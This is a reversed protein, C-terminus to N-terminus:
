LRMFGPANGGRSRCIGRVKMDENRGQEMDGIKLNAGSVTASTATDGTTTVATAMGGKRTHGGSTDEKAILTASEEFEDKTGGAKRDAATVTRATDIAVNQGTKRRIAVAVVQVLRHGRRM